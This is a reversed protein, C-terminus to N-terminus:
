ILTKSEIKDKALKLIKPDIDIGEFIADPHKQKGLILLTGTGCGFDLIKDDEKINMLDILEGKIRREPIIFSLFSDFFKTLFHFDFAPIYKEKM